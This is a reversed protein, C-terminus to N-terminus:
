DRSSQNESVFLSILSSVTKNIVLSFHFTIDEFVVLVMEM